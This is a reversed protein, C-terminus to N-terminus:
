QYFSSSSQDVFSSSINSNRITTNNILWAIYPMKKPLCAIPTKLENQLVDCCLIENTNGDSIRTRTTGERSVVGWIGVKGDNGTNMQQVCESLLPEDDTRWIKMQNTRKLVYFTSEDSFIVKRWDNVSWQQYEQWWKVGDRRHKNTLWSKKIKVAYEYSFKRIHRCVTDQSARNQGVLMEIQQSKKWM